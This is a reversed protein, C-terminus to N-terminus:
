CSSSLDVHKEKNIKERLVKLKKECKNADKNWKDSTPILDYAQGRSFNLNLYEKAIEEYLQKQEEYYIIQENLSKSELNIKREKYTKVLLKAYLDYLKEHANFKKLVDDFKRQYDCFDILDQGADSDDLVFYKNVFQRIKLDSNM